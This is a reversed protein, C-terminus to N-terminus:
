TRSLCHRDWAGHFKAPNTIKVPKGHWIVEGEDQQHTGSLINMLTSKGAGNEGTIAHIEGKRISFSVNNLAVVGPFKKVINKFEIIDKM